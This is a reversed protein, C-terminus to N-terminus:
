HELPKVKGIYPKMQSITELLKEKFNISFELGLSRIKSNDVEFEKIDGILWDGYKIDASSKGFGEVVMDALEKVTIKLGSACNYAEGKTKESAAVLLNAKVVDGVYTFSRQQTGDGFITIPENNLMNRIFIAVVGGYEGFEQRPGFVHFYRLVTTDLYFLKEYLAAYKEGALKSVGYFSRPNLPHDETQPFQIPEGYVSGTSAHVLKKVKNTKSLELVNFTGGANVALDKRPDALSVNKKAAANHFVVDVGDFHKKLSEFDCVDCDVEQFNKFKKLHAVNEHRGAIYNDISVVKLGTNVLAECLHSGIFGAGGTVMAKQYKKKLVKEIEM